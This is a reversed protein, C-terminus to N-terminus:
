GEAGYTFAGHGTMRGATWEGVYRNGNPWTLVGSGERKGQANLSGEYKEGKLGTVVHTSGASTQGSDNSPKTAAANSSVTSSGRRLGTAAATSSKRRQTAAAAASSGKRQM